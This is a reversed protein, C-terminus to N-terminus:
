GAKRVRGAPVGCVAALAEELADSARAAAEVAHRLATERPRRVGRKRLRERWMALERSTERSGDIQDKLWQKGAWAKCDRLAYSQDASHEDLYQQATLLVSRLQEVWELPVVLTRM